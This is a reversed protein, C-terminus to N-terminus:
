TTTSTPSIQVPERGTIAAPDLTLVNTMSFGVVLQDDPTEAFVPYAATGLLAALVLGRAHLTM